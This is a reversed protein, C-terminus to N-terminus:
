RMWRERKGMMAMQEARNKRARDLGRTIVNPRKGFKRAIRLTTWGYVERLKLWKKGRADLEAIDELRPGGSDGIM